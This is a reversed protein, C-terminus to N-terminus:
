NKKYSLGGFIKAWLKEAALKGPRPGREKLQCPNQRSRRRGLGVLLQFGFRSRGSWWTPFTLTIPISLALNKIKKEWFIEDFLFGVRYVWGSEIDGMAKRKAEPLPPSFTVDGARLVGIPLTIVAKKASFSKGSLTTITIGSRDYQIQSVVTNLHLAYKPKEALADLLSRYGFLFRFAREDDDSLALSRTSVLDLDAAQFGEIFSKTATRVDSPVKLGRLFEAFSLDHKRPRSLKAFVPEVKKWFDTADSLSGKRIFQHKLKLEYIGLAHEEALAMTEDPFGHVFEAGYELAVPGVTRKTFIRGGVRDRAEVVCVSKGKESLAKACALGAVGAGVILVDFM